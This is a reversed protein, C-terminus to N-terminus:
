KAKEGMRKCIELIQEVVEDITKGSTDVLVADEAQKLPAVERESDRKDREAIEAELEELSTEHGKAQLEALRREARERISATLFIKVEANPLVHTGIDRGDMVVNGEKALERQLALMQMRVEGHSAVISAYQSVEPTRIESTIDIENWFVLQEQQNRALRIRNKELLRSVAQEDTVEIGERQVAWALARYMAGTDIYVYQLRAAVIKAVTSKGAGAPGDIAINM